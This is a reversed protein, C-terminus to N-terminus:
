RPTPSIFSTNITFAADEVPELQRAAEVELRNPRDELALKRTELVCGRQDAVARVDEAEVVFRGAVVFPARADVQERAVRRVSRRDLLQEGVLKRRRDGPERGM